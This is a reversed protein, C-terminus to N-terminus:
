EVDGDKEVEKLDDLYVQAKQAAKTFNHNKWIGYLLTALAVFVFIFKQVFDGDLSYGFLSGVNLIIIVLASVITKITEKKHDIDYM